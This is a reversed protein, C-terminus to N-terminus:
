MLKMKSKLVHRTKIEEQSAKTHADYYSMNEYKMYNYETLEHQIVIAIDKKPLSNDIWMENEPIFSYVYPHGGMTYDVCLRNRVYLGNVLFISIDTNEKDKVTKYLRKKLKRNNVEADKRSKKNYASNKDIFDKFELIYEM